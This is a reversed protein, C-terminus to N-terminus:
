VEHCKYQASKVVANGPCTATKATRSILFFPQALRLGAALVLVGMTQLAIWRGLLSQESLLDIRNPGLLFQIGSFTLGYKHVQDELGQNLLWWGLPWFIVSILVGLVTAGTSRMQAIFVANVAIVIMLAYLYGEGSIGLPGQRAILENINDTSAWDFAIAKCLMLWPLANLSWWIVRTIVPRSSDNIKVYAAQVIALVVILPSYLAAYRVTREIVSLLEPSIALFLSRGTEGWIDRNTVFWYLNTSGALDRISEQTMSLNFLLLSVM